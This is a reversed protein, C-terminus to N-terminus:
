TEWRAGFQEEACLRNVHSLTEIAQEPNHLLLKLEIRQAAVQEEEDVFAAVGHLCDEPIAIPEHDPVLPKFSSRPLQRCRVGFRQFKFRVFQRHNETANIQLRSLEMNVIVMSLLIAAGAPLTADRHRRQGFLWNLFTNSTRAEDTRQNDALSAIMQGNVATFVDKHPLSM